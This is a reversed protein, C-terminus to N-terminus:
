LEDETMLPPRKDWVKGSKRDFNYDDRVDIAVGEYNGYLHTASFGTIDLANYFTV